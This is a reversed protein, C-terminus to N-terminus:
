SAGQGVVLPKMRLPIGSVLLQVEDASRALEQNVLGLADQYARSLAGLPVIGSGVENTVAVVTGPRRQAVAILDRALGVCRDIAQEFSAWSARETDPVAALLENTVWLGICDLLVFTGPDISVLAAPLDRPAEVTRWSGPRRSQHLAIRSATEEDRPEMTALYAVPEGSARALSEAFRSKGSRAGGTVLTLTGM